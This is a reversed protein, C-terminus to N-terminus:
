SGSPENKKARPKSPSDAPEWDPGLRKATAASVNVVAGNAKNKLRTM